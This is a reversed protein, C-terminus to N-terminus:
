TVITVSVTITPHPIKCSDMSLNMRLSQMSLSLFCVIISLEHVLQAFEYNVFICTVIVGVLMNVMGILYNSMM